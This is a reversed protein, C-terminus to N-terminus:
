DVTHLIQVSILALASDHGVLVAFLIIKEFLSSFLEFVRLFHKLGLPTSLELLKDINRNLLNIRIESLEHLIEGQIYNWMHGLLLIHM